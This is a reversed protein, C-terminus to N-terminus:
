AGDIVVDGVDAMLEQVTGDVTLANDGASDIKYNEITTAIDNGSASTIGAGLCVVEDDFM